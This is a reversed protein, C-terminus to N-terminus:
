LNKNIPINIMFITGSNLKSDVSIRGKHLEVIKKVYSLGLGFGKNTHINGTPVRFFNDFIRDLYNKSVGIGNDEFSIRFYTNNGSLSVTVIPPKSTSRYKISNDLLNYLVNEIHVPDFEAIIPEDPVNVIIQGNYQDLKTINNSRFTQLIKKIDRTETKIIYPNEQALRLISEIMSSVRKLESNCIELYKDLKEEDNKIGFKNILEIALIVTSIPTKFEHTMNSIFDNKIESMEKEHNFTRILAVVGYFLLVIILFSTLLLWKLNQIHGFLFPDVIVRIDLKPGITSTVELYSNDKRTSDNKQKTVNSISYTNKIGLEKFNYRITNHLLKLVDLSDIPLSTNNKTKLDKYNTISDIISKSGNEISDNSHNKLVKFPSLNIQLTNNSDKLSNDCKLCDKINISDMNVEREIKVGKVDKNSLEGLSEGIAKFVNFQDPTLSNSDLGFYAQVRAVDISNKVATKIIIEEKRRNEQFENYLWFLQFVIVAITSALVIAVIIRNKLQKSM